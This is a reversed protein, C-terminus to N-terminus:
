KILACCLCFLFRVCPIATSPICGGKCKLPHCRSSLLSRMQLSGRICWQQSLNLKCKLKWSTFKFKQCPKRHKSPAMISGEYFSYLLRKTMKSLSEALIRLLRWLMPINLSWSNLSETQPGLGIPKLSEKAQWSHKRVNLLMQGQFQVKLLALKCKSLSHSSQDLEWFNSNHIFAQWSWTEFERVKRIWARWVLELTFYADTYDCTQLCSAYQGNLM